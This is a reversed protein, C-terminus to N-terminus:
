LGVVSTVVLQAPRSVGVIQHGGKATGIHGVKLAPAQLIDEVGETPVLGHQKAEGSGGVTPFNLGGQIPSHNVPNEPGELIDDNLSLPVLCM